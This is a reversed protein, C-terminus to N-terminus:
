DSASDDFLVAQTDAVVAKATKLVDVSMAIELRKENEIMDQVTVIQIHPYPKGMLPHTYLGFGNAEETMGRTPEKLTIFVGLEANERQRDSNLKAVDGRGVNGSKVQFVIKANTDAGTLFFATGDIGGDGGKKDNIIARNNSYTLVAWKEFEKRTRDDRKLALATASEMDRPIGNLTINQLAPKGYQDELRRLILAISQYTIDIGIWNRGLREAVAVTTGCGCYADLVTDGPNTSAAVIRELLAEPKQTPYGLREKASANIAPLEWVDGSRRGESM